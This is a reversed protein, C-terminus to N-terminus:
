LDLPLLPMAQGNRSLRYRLDELAIAADGGEGGLAAVLLSASVPPSPLGYRAAIKDIFRPKPYESYIVRKGPPIEALERALRLAEGLGGIQDVLGAEKALLGSYVRGQAVAEVAEVSMNRGAAVRAVFDAYLDMIHIRFQAEEDGTMDRHPLLIGATLDAHAGRSLIDLTLGLKGYLGTDYFWGGIVGISGTLTYPSAVIRSANMSAWYGGSAAVSGMSVVVPMREKVESVAQAV